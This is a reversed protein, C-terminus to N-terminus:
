KKSDSSYNMVEKTEKKFDLSLNIEGELISKMLQEEENKIESFKKEMIELVLQDEKYKNDTPMECNGTLTTTNFNQLNQLNYNLYQNGSNPFLNNTNPSYGVAYNQYLQNTRLISQANVPHFNYPPMNQNNNAVLNMNGQSSTSLINPQNQPNQLSQNKINNNPNPNINFQGIPQNQLNQTRKTLDNQLSLNNNNSQSNIMSMVNQNLGLNMMYSYLKPNTNYLNLNNINNSNPNNPNIYPAGQYIYPNTNIGANNNSLNNSNVNVSGSVQVPVQQPNNINNNKSKVNEQAKLILNTVNVMADNNRKRIDELDETQKKMFSFVDSLKSNLGEAFMNMKSNILKDLKTEIGTIIKESLSKKFDLILTKTDGAEGEGPSSSIPIQINNSNTSTPSPNDSNKMISSIAISKNKSNLNLNNKNSATKFNKDSNSKGNSFELVSVKSNKIGKKLDIEYKLFEEEQYLVLELINDSLIQYDFMCAYLEQFNVEYISEILFNSQAPQASDQSPFSKMKFILIEDHEYLCLSFHFEDITTFNYMGIGQSDEMSKSKIQITQIKEYEINEFQIDKTPKEPKEPKSENFNNKIKWIKILISSGTNSSNILEDTILYLNSVEQQKDAVVLFNKWDGLDSIISTSSKENKDSNVNNNNLAKIKNFKYKNMLYIKNTPKDYFFIETSNTVIVRSLQLMNNNNLSNENEKTDSKPIKESPLKLSNELNKEEFTVKIKNLKKKYKCHFLIMKQGPKSLIYFKHYKKSVEESGLFLLLNSNSFERQFLIDFKKENKGTNNESSTNSNNYIKLVCVYNYVVLFVILPQENEFDVVSFNSFFKYGALTGFNLTPIKFNLDSSNLIFRNEEKMILFNFDKIKNTIKFDNTNINSNIPNMGTNANYINSPIKFENVKCYTFFLFGNLSKLKNPIIKEQLSPPSPKDSSLIACDIKNKIESLKVYIQNLQIESLDNSNISEVKEINFKFLNESEKTPTNLIEESDEPLDEKTESHSPRKCDEINLKPTVEIAKELTEM